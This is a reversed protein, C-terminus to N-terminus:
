KDGKKYKRHDEFFFHATCVTTFVGAIIGVTGFWDFRAFIKPLSAIFAGCLVGWMVSLVLYKIRTLIPM